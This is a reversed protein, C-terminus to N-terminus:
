FDQYNLENIEVPKPQSAATVIPDIMLSVLTQLSGTCSPGKAIIMPAPEPKAPLLDGQPWIGALQVKTM